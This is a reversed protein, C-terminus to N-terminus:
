VSDNHHFDTGGRKKRYVSKELGVWKQKIKKPSVLEDKTDTQDPMVAKPARENERRPVAWSPQDRNANTLWTRRISKVLRFRDRHFLHGRTSEEAQAPGDV